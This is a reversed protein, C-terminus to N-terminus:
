KKEKFCIKDSSQLQWQIRVNIEESNETWHSLSLKTAQTTKTPNKKPPRPTYNKKFQNLMCQSM